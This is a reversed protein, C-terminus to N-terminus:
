ILNYIQAQHIMDSIVKEGKFVKKLIEDAHKQDHKSLLYSHYLVLTDFCSPRLVQATKTNILAKEEHNIKIHCM